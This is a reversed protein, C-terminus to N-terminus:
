SKLREPLERIKDLISNFFKNREKESTGSILTSKHMLNRLSGEIQACFTANSTILLNIVNYTAYVNKINDRSVLLTNDGLLVENNFLKFNGEVGEPQSGYQFKYGLSAQRMLHRMMVGLNECILTVDERNSFFGSVYCYEIQRLISDFTEQNWIEIVPTRNYNALLRHGIELIGEPLERTFPLENGGTSPFLVRQWFFLKFSFLVPFEMLHFIPIDKASYIIEKHQAAHILKMEDLLSKLWDEMTLGNHGIAMSNFIINNSQVNLLTDISIKYRTCITKIEELTLETEGRIRRYASDYSIGLIESIDHVFSIHPLQQDKISQFLLDQTTIKKEM